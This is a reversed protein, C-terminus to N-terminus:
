IWTRYLCFVRVINKWSGTASIRQFFFVKDLYTMSEEGRNLQKLQKENKLLRSKTTDHANKEKNLQLYFDLM